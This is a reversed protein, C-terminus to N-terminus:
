QLKAILIEHLVNHQLFFFGCIYCYYVFLLLVCDTDSAQLFLIIKFFLYFYGM